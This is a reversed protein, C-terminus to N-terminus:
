LVPAREGVTGPFAKSSESSNILRFQRRVGQEGRVTRRRRLRVKRSALKPSRDTSLAASGSFVRPRTGACPLSLQFLPTIDIGDIKKGRSRTAPNKRFRQLVPQLPLPAIATSHRGRTQASARNTEGPMVKSPWTERRAIKNGALPSRFVDKSESGTGGFGGQTSGRGAPGPPIAPPVRTRIGSFSGGSLRGAGEIMVKHHFSRRNVGRGFSKSAGAFEHV